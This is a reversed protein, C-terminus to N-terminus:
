WFRFLVGALQEIGWTIILCFISLILAALTINFTAPRPGMYVLKNM